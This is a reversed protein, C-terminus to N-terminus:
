RRNSAAIWSCTEPLHHRAGQASPRLWGHLHYPRGGGRRSGGAPELGAETGGIAGSGGARVTATTCGITTTRGASSTASPAALAPSGRGCLHPAALSPGRRTRRPATMRHSGPVPWTYSDCAVCSARRGNPWSRTMMGSRRASAGLAGRGHANRATWSGTLIPAM